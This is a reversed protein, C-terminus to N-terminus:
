LGLTCFIFSIHDEGHPSWLRESSFSEQVSMVAGHWPSHVDNGGPKQPLLLCLGKARSIQALSGSSFLAWVLFPHLWLVNKPNFNKKFIWLLPCPMIVYGSPMSPLGVNRSSPSTFQPQHSIGLLTFLVYCTDWATLPDGVGLMTSTLKNRKQCLKVIIEMSSLKWDKNIELNCTFILSHFLCYIFSLPPVNEIEM